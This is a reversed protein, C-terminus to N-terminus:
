FSSPRPRQIHRSTSRNAPTRHKGAHRSADLRAARAANIGTHEEGRWGCACEAAYSEPDGFRARLDRLRIAHEPAHDRRADDDVPIPPSPHLWHEREDANV